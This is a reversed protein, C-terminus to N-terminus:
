TCSFGSVDQSSIDVEKIALWRVHGFIMKQVYIPQVFELELNM